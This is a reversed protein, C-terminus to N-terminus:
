AALSTDLHNQEHATLGAKTDFAAGCITCVHEAVPSNTVHGRVHNKLDSEREFAAGCRPCTLNSNPAPTFMAGKQAGSESTRDGM